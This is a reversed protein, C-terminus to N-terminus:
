ERTTACVDRVELQVAPTVPVYIQEFPIDKHDSALVHLSPQLRTERPPNEGMDLLSATLTCYGAPDLSGRWTPQIHVSKWLKKVTLQEGSFTLATKQRTIHRLPVDWFGHHREPHSPSYLPYVDFRVVHHESRLLRKDNIHLILEANEDIRWPIKVDFVDDM